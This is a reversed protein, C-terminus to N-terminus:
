RRTRARSSTSSTREIAAGVRYTKGPDVERVAVTVRTGTEAQGLVNRVQGEATAAQARSGVDIVKIM